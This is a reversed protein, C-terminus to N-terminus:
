GEGDPRPSLVGNLYAAGDDAMDIVAVFGVFIELLKQADVKALGGIVATESKFRNGAEPGAIYRRSNANVANYVAM